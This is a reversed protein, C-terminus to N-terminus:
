YTGEESTGASIKQEKRIESAFIPRRKYNLFNRTCEEGGAGDIREKEFTKRQKEFDGTQGIRQKTSHFCNSM